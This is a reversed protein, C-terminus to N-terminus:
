RSRLTITSGAIASSDIDMTGRLDTISRNVVDMGIGRGSVQTTGRRTTFGPILTLRALERESMHRDGPVLGQSVALERIRLFDFGAGDDQCRIIVSEGERAFVM